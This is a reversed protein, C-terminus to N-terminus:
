VDGWDRFRGRGTMESLNLEGALILAGQMRVKLEREIMTSSALAQMEDRGIARMEVRNLPEPADHVLMDGVVFAVFCAALEGIRRKAEQTFINWSVPVSEAM